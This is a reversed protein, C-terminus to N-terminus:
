CFFFFFHRGSLVFLGALLFLLLKVQGAHCFAFGEVLLQGRFDEVVQDLTEVVVVLLLNAVDRVGEESVDELVKPEVLHARTVNFISELFWVGFKQLAVSHRQVKANMHDSRVPEFAMTSRGLFVGFCFLAEFQKVLSIAIHNSGGVDLGDQPLVQRERGRVLVDGVENSLAVGVARSM